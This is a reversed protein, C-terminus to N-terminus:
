NGQISKTIIKYIKHQQLNLNELHSQITQTDNRKAPGTQADLPPVSQIKKATEEILPYLIEFPVQHEDCIDKGIKYMHNSFNNVFVAALHIKKRQDSTIRYFNEGISKALEELLVLDKDNTAELCFPINSFDIITGKTFSQLPYFVGKRKQSIASMEVTGSTHVILSNNARLQNSVTTIANDSVAIITIDASPINELQRSNVKVIEIHTAADFATALHSAVNGQGILVVKIM